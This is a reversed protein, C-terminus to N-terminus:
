EYFKRNFKCKVEAHCFISYFCKAIDEESCNNKCADFYQQNDLYFKNLEEIYFM